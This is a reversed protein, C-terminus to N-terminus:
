DYLILNKTWGFTKNGGDPTVGCLSGSVFVIKGTLDPEDPIALGMVPINRSKWENTAPNRYREEIIMKRTNTQQDVHYALVPGKLLGVNMVEYRNTSLAINEIKGKVGVIEEKQWEEGVKKSTSIMTIMLDSVFIFPNTQLKHKILEGIRGRKSNTNTDIDFNLFIKNDQINSDKPSSLQVYVWLKPYKDSGKVGWKLVEGTINWTNM